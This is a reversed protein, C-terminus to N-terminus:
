RLPLCIVTKLEAEPTTEPDNCYIEYGDGKRVKLRQYRSIQHAASWANGLHGYKGLHEVQLGNGSPVSWVSMGSPLEVSDPLTLGSTFDMVGTKMNFGHYVSMPQGDTPLGNSKFQQLTECFAHEMKGAIEAQACKARVGAMRIAEHPQVGHITTKSLIEGTEIWEKLMKLGREYDMGILTMMMSKLFFLFFPLSGYMNWTLRTGDAAPELEFVVRSTSKFPKFMRLEAEIRHPSEFARHEMEGAGVVTGDWSYVSGVSAADPTVEVNADPEASLWPSWTTWTGFDVVTEFVREPPAAIEISREVHFAGM